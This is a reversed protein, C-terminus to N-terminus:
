GDDRMLPILRAKLEDRQEVYFAEDVLGAEYADTLEALARLLDEKGANRGPAQWRIAPRPEAAAAPQAARVMQDRQRWWLVGALMLVAVGLGGLVLPLLYAVYGTLYLLVDAIWAGVPGGANSLPATVGGAATSWGPDDPSYTALCVLLYLLLPAILIMAIDRLLRQRRPDPPAVDKTSARQRRGREPVARAVTM